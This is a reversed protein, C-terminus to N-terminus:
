DDNRVLKEWETLVKHTFKRVSEPLEKEGREWKRVNGIGWNWAALALTIDEDFTKLLWSFYLKAAKTAGEPDFPDFTYCWRKRIDEVTIPMFQFLGKAGKVSVADSNLSSEIKALAALLRWDVEPKTLVKESWEKIEEVEVTRGVIFRALFILLIILLVIKLIM